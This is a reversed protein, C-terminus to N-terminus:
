EPQFLAITNGDPEKFWASKGIGPSTAISDVTKFTPFDYEEFAIGRATLENVDSAVDASWFRVQTHDARNPNARGYVLLTTGDGCEFVLHNEITEESLRLGVQQEYFDRSRAIDSSCVVASIRSQGVVGLEKITSNAVITRRRRARRGL